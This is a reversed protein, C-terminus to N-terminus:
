IFWLYISTGDRSQVDVKLERLNLLTLGALRTAMFFRGSRVRAPVVAYAIGAGLVAIALLPWLLFLPVPLILNRDKRVKLILLAPIM